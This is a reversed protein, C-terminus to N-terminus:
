IKGFFFCSHSTYAATQQRIYVYGLITTTEVPAISILSISLHTVHCTKFKECIILIDIPIFTSFYTPQCFIRVGMIM